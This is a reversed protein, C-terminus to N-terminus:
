QYYLAIINLAPRNWALEFLPRALVIHQEMFLAGEEYGVLHETISVATVQTQKLTVTLCAVHFCLGPQSM